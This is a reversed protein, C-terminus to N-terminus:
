DKSLLSNKERFIELGKGVVRRMEDRHTTTKYIFIQQIKELTFSCDRSKVRKSTANSKNYFISLSYINELFFNELALVV